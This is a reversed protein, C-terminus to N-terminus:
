GNAWRYVYNGALDGEPTEMFQGMASDGIVFNYTGDLRIVKGDRIELLGSYKDGNEYSITGNLQPAHLNQFDSTFDGQLMNRGFTLTGSGM